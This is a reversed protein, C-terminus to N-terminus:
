KRRKFLFQGLLLVSGTVLGTVLSALVIRRTDLMTEVSGEVRGALLVATRVRDAQVHRAALVGTRSGANLSTTGKSLVAGVNGSVTAQNAQVAFTASDKLTVQEAQTIGVLSNHAQVNRATVRAAGSLHLDVEEANNVSGVLSKEVRVLEADLRDLRSGRLNVVQPRDVELPPRTKTRPM